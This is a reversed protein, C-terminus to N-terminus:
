GFSKSFQSNTCQWHIQQRDSLRFFVGRRSYCSSWVSLYRMISIKCFCVLKILYHMFVIIPSNIFSGYKDSKIDSATTTKEWASTFVKGFRYKSLVSQDTLLLNWYKMLFADWFLELPKCVSKDLSQLEHTTNSSHCFFIVDLKKLERVITVDIWIYYLDNRQM